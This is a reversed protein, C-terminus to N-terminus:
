VTKGTGISTVAPSRLHPSDQHIWYLLFAATGLIVLVQSWWEHVAVFDYPHHVGVFYLGTLRLVNVGLTLVTGLVIATLRQHRSLPLLLLTAVIITLPVVGTCGYSIRFRFGSPHTLVTSQATVPLGLRDITLATVSATIEDLPQFFAKHAPRYELYAVVAFVCALVLAQKVWAAPLRSEFTM